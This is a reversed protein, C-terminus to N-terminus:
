SLNGYYNRAKRNGVMYRGYIIQRNSETCRRCIRNFKGEAIFKQDCKLCTRKIRKPRRLEPKKIYGM